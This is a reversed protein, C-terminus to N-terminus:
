VDVPQVHNACTSIDPIEILPCDVHRVDGWACSIIEASSVEPLLSCWNGERLFCHNCGKEPMKMGKILISM